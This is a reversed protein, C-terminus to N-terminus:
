GTARTEDPGFSDVVDDPLDRTALRDGAMEIEADSATAAVGAEILMRLTTRMEEGTARPAEVSAPTLEAAVEESDSGIVPEVVARDNWEARSEPHHSLWWGPSVARIEQQVPVASAGTAQMVKLFFNLYQAQYDQPNADRKYAEAGWKLWQRARAPSVGDRMAAASLSAGHFIATAISIALADSVRTPYAWPSFWEIQIEEREDDNVGTGQYLGGCPYM